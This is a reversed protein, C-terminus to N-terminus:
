AAKLEATQWANGPLAVIAIRHQIAFDLMADQELVITKDAEVALVSGGAQQMSQLTGLGVTPVDFRMDQNPKAVKVVTFGGAPCLQGARRICADTGEVAEVALVARRKVVVSQGIDLGGMQKALRWGFEIDHFQAKNIKHPTLTGPKVLLEPAFDTAPLFDIGYAAFLRIATLLMADDNCDESRSILQRYFHRTFALDPMHRLWAFKEFLATKFIKGAMTAQRVGCGRFFRAQHGLKAMGFTQYETCWPRLAAEDAHHLVAACCVEIGRQHLRRAIAVPYQGWGAILGMRHKM